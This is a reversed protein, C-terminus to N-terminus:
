SAAGSGGQKDDKKLGLPNCLTIIMRLTCGYPCFAAYPSSAQMQKQEDEHFLWKSSVECTDQLYKAYRFDSFEEM